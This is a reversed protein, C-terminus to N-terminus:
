KKIKEYGKKMRKVSEVIEEENPGTFNLRVHTFQDKAAYFAAGPVFTVKEDLCANFYEYCDIGEPLKLWLFFGGTPEEFAFEPLYKKLAVVMTALRKKYLACTDALHEEYSYLNMFAELTAQNPLSTHLDVQEKLAELRELIIKSAAMWGLRIGPSFTKSFSGCLIVQGTKSLSYLSPRFEGTYNIEGYPNDEIVVVNYQSVLNLVEQRRAVSWHRGTPNQYDPIIYILKVKDDQDLAEKLASIIMGEQDCSVDKVNAGYFRYTNLADLYSPAEVLITDGENLFLRSCLDIAMTSGTTVLINSVDPSASFKEKMIGQIKERLGVLGYYDGYQLIEKGRTSLAVKAAEAVKESLFVDSSPVGRALSICNNKRALAALVGIESPTVQKANKTFLAEINM